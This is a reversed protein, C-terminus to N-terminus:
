SRPAVQVDGLEEANAHGNPEAFGDATGSAIDIVPSSAAPITRMRVRKAFQVEDGALALM